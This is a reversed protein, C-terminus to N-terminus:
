QMPEPRLICADVQAIVALDHNDVSPNAISARLVQDLTVVEALIGDVIILQHCADTSRNYSFQLSGESGIPVTFTADEQGSVCGRLDSKLQLSDTIHKTLDYWAARAELILVVQLQERGEDM